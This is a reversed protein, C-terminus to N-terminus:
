KIHDLSFSGISVGQKSYMYQIWARSQVDCIGKVSLFTKLQEVKFEIMGDMVSGLLQIEQEGHMGKEILYMSVSKDRKRRGAFPQLFRFATSPDLYAILTSISRFALRYYSHKGKLEKSIQDVADLIAEHDTPDEVYTVNPDDVEEAGMGKSYADVYRVLGLREYESYGPLVYEMEERIDEPTKDTIVWLAPLGKKLGEAIFASVIVEKGIFPPGYVSVNSGFPVGGLLLDDLRPTGTKSKEQHMELKLEEDRADIEDEILGQERMRLEEMKAKLYKEKSRVEEEKKSIEAKLSELREKLAVEEVSGSKAKAEEVRRKEAELLKERYILDEERRLMEEEKYALPEKLKQIEQDKFAVEEALKQMEEEKLLLEREKAQLEKVKESLEQDLQEEPLSSLEFAEATLKADIKQRDVEGELEIIRKRMEAEKELFEREKEALEAQLRHELEANAVQATEAALEEEVVRLREEKADLELEREKLGIETEKIVRQDDPLSLLGDKLEKKAEELLKQVKALEIELRKRSEREEALRRQVEPVEEGKQTKVYKIVAVSSKKIHDLESETEKRRQVEQRLERNLRAVQELYRMPNFGGERGLEAKMAKRLEILEARLLEVEEGIDEQDGETPQQPAAEGEVAPGAPESLWAELGAEDGKLWRRLAEVSGERAGAEGKPRPKEVAVTEGAEEGSEVEPPASGDAKKPASSDLWSDIDAEEGKLWKELAKEDGGDEPEVEVTAEGSEVELFHQHVKEALVEGFGEIAALDELSAKKVEDISTFGSAVLAEAKAPGLGPIASVEELLADQPNASQSPLPEGKPDHRTGCGSCEGDEKLDGGCNSCVAKAKEAEEGNALM